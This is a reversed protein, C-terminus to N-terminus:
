GLLHRKAYWLVYLVVTCVICHMNKTNWKGKSVTCRTLEHKCQTIAERHKVHITQTKWQSQISLM